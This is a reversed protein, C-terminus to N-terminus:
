CGSSADIYFHPGGPVGHLHSTGSKTGTVETTLDITAYYFPDDSKLNLSDFCAVTQDGTNTATWDARYDGGALAFSESEGMGEGARTVTDSGPAPPPAEPICAEPGDVSTITAENNNLATILALPDSPAPQGNTMTITMCVQGTS